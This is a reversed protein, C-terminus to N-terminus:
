WKRRSVTEETEEQKGETEWGRRMRRQQIRREKKGRCISTSGPGPRPGRRMTQVRWLRNGVKVGGRSGLGKREVAFAQQSDRSTGLVHELSLALPLGEIGRELGTHRGNGFQFGGSVGNSLGFSKSREQSRRNERVRHGIWCWIRGTRAEFDIQIRQQAGNGSSGSWARTVRGQKWDQLGATERRFM